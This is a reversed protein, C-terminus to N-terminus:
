ELIEILGMGKVRYFSVKRGHFLLAPKPSSVCDARIGAKEFQELTQVLDPTEYCLHYIVGSTHREILADVPGPGNGPYIIEVAPHDPRSCLLLHVNQEPDFVPEGIRCGLASLFAIAPAPQKVALGFHHFVLNLPNM